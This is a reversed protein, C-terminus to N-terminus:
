QVGGLNSHSSYEAFPNSSTQLIYTLFFHLFTDATVLHGFLHAVHPTMQKAIQLQFKLYIYSEFGKMIQNEEKEM